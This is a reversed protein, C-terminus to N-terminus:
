LKIRQELDLLEQKLKLGAAFGHLKGDRGIVRHCPVVILNKNKGIANAVARVKRVDGLAIAVDKYSWTQGYPIGKLVNWVSKQFPTGIEDLPLNFADLSGKLYDKLAKHYPTNSDYLAHEYEQIPSNSVARLGQDTSYIYLTTENFLINSQKM